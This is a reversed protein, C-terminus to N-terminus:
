MKKMSVVINNETIKEVKFNQRTKEDVSDWIESIDGAYNFTIVGEKSELSKKASTVGEFTKVKTFVQGFYPSEYDIGKLVIRYSTASTEVLNNQNAADTNTEQKKKKSGFINKGLDLIKGATNAANEVSNATRSVQNNTNNIKDSLNQASFFNSCLIIALASIFSNTKM